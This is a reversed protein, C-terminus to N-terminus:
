NKQVRRPYFKAFKKRFALVLRRSRVPHSVIDGGCIGMKQAAIRMEEHIGVNCASGYQHFTACNGCEAPDYPFKFDQWKKHEQQGRTM